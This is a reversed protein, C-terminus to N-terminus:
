ECPDLFDPGDLCWISESNEVGFSTSEPPQESEATLGARKLAVKARGEASEALEVTLAFGPSHGPVASALQVRRIEQRDRTTTIRNVLWTEDGGFLFFIPSAENDASTLNRAVVIPPLRSLARRAGSSRAPKGYKLV